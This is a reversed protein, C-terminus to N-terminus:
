SLRSRVYWRIALAIVDDSFSHGSFARTSRVTFRRGCDTCRWRQGGLRTQGDRRTRESGCRMCPM